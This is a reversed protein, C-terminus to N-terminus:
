NNNDIQEKNAITKKDAMAIDRMGQNTCTKPIKKVISKIESKAMTIFKLTALKADSIFYYDHWM